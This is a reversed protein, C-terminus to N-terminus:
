LNDMENRLAQYVRNLETLAYRDEDTQDNEYPFGCIGRFHMRQIQARRYIVLGTMMALCLLCITALILLISSVSIARRSRLQLLFLKDNDKQVDQSRHYLPYLTFLWKSFTSDNSDIIFINQIRYLFSTSACNFITLIFIIQLIYTHTHTQISLLNRNFRSFFSITGPFFRVITQICM